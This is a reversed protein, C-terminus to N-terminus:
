PRQVSNQTESIVYLTKHPLTLWAAAVRRM